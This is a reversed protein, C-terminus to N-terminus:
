IYFLQLQIASKKTLIISSRRKAHYMNIQIHSFQRHQGDQQIQLYDKSISIFSLFIFNLYLVQYKLNLDLLFYLEAFTIVQKKKSGIVSEKLQVPILAKKFLSDFSHNKTTLYQAYRSEVTRRSKTEMRLFKVIEKMMTGSFFIIIM